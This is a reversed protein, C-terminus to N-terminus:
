RSRPVLHREALTEIEESQAQMRLYSHRLQEILRAKELDATQRRAAAARASM